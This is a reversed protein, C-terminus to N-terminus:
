LMGVYAHPHYFQMAKIGFFLAHNARSVRGQLQPCLIVDPKVTRLSNSCRAFHVGTPPRRASEFHASQRDPRWAKKGLRGVKASSRKWAPRFLFALHVEIGRNILFHCLTEVYRFVGDVGPESVVLVKMLHEKRPQLCPWGQSNKISKLCTPFMAPRHDVHATGIGTMLLGGLRAARSHNAKLEMMQRSLSEVSGAPSNFGTSAM